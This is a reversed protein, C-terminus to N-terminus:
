ILRWSGHRSRGRNSWQSVAAMKDFTDPGPGGGCHSVGPLMFLALSAEAESGVTKVVNHFFIVSNQAPVQPDSWGHWMLLKGGRDFFPTLDFNNSALLGDDLRAAREIVAAIDDLRFQAAPDKLHFNRVRAVSNRLPDPGGLRGWQLEAGPWLHAELLVRGTAPDTFPSTLVRASEVQPPTLCSPGDPGQCALTAYDFRCTRPSEIM